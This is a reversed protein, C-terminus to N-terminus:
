PKPSHLFHNDTGASTSAKHRQYAAWLPQILYVTVCGFAARSPEEELSGYMYQHPQSLSQLKQTQCRHNISTSELSTKLGYLGDAGVWGGGWGKGRAAGSEVSDIIIRGIKDEWENGWM